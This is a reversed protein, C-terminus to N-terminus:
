AQPLIAHIKALNTELIEEKIEDDCQDWEADLGRRGFLDALVTFLIKKATDEPPNGYRGLFQELLTPM